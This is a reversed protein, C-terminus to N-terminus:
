GGPGVAGGNKLKPGPAKDKPPGFRIIVGRGGYVLSQILSAVTV